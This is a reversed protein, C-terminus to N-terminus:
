SKETSISEVARRLDQQSPTIYRRTTELSEHGALQAVIQLPQGSDILNRCFSHRLSHASYDELDMVDLYKRVLYHIGQRTMREHGRESLFLTSSEISGRIDIWTELARLLDLNIFTVRNKGGKGAIVTLTKRKINIDQMDLSAVESIRLGAQLMCQVIALNRANKWANKEKELQHIFKDQQNRDLWKHSQDLPSIRKMKVKFTPNLTSHGYQILFSWYVKIAAVRKNITAPALKEVTQMFSIWEHLDRATIHDPHFDEFRGLIWKELSLVAAVYESITRIGKGSEHLYTQFPDLYNM